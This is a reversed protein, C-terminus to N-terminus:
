KFGDYGIEFSGEICMYVMFIEGFKFVEIKNELLVFNMIFYFCDVVVNLVNLKIEYKKQIDVKKYNIVDFVLDVYLERTKGQVDKCDFDYLCYM